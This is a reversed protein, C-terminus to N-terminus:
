SRQLELRADADAALEGLLEDLKMFVDWPQQGTAKALRAVIKQELEEERRGKWVKDALSVLLDEITADADAWKAHTRAFRARSEPEGQAILWAYGALEHESGSGTLEQPHLAKGIDHTAAGFAVAPRDFSILELGDIIQVAVDHVLQLHVRLRRPAGIKTLHAEVDAPLARLKV